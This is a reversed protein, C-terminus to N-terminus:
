FNKEIYFSNYNSGGHVGNYLGFVGSRHKIVVGLYLEELPKYRVLRGLDFDLSIDLYNLFKSTPSDKEISDLEEIKLLRTTYSVGEGFGLRVRNSWFDINWVIKLYLDAGYTDKFRDESYYNLGGKLYLELPWENIDKFLRKGGDLSYVKYEQHTPSLQGTVVEGLDKITAWGYVARFSHRNLDKAVLFSSFLLTICFAVFIKHM